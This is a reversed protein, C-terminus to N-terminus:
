DRLEVSVEFHGNKRSPKGAFLRILKKQADLRVGKLIRMDDIGHLVLGPNEHLAGHGFWETILAFPVVPKGGIVHASLIPYEITDIEKKFSLTLSSADEKQEIAQPHPQETKHSADATAAAPMDSGIVIEIPHNEQQSGMEFLMSQAGTDLPILGINQRQFARKLAPTVMGGDWPGWNISLTHCDPHQQSFRIASKNLVENAMAYDAQGINGNRASVSSFIVLYKLSDKQTVALLNRLGTVKTDFVLDFQASKKDVILRDEVVGAGHIIASIPGLASRVDEIAAKLHNCDRIDTSIYRMEVGMAEFQEFIFLMERNAMHRTYSHEIDRPSAGNNNFENELIARKIDALAFLDRLWLPEPHPPESRGVLVMKAKSHRALALAASATVGRAGGTVVVVDKNSLALQLDGAHATPLDNLALTYRCDSALGIELSESAMPELLEDCISEAIAKLDNWDPAIDLARCTVGEWEIAATKLLGSLGGMAPNEVAHGSFGFAGDLRTITALLTNIGDATDNLEQAAVQVLQFARKLFEDIELDTTLDSDAPIILGSVNSFTKNQDLIDDAMSPTLLVADVGRGAFTKVITEALKSGDKLVYVQGGPKFTLARGLSRPTERVEVSKRALNEDSNTTATKEYFQAPAGSPKEPLASNHTNEQEGNESLPTANGTLYDVIQGLSKLNGMLEPTVTPLGPVREELTSLIEVRKISDIGLDAEIDMGMNLMDAPYGTLESVVELLMDSLMTKENGAHKPTEQSTITHTGVSFSPLETEKTQGLYGVIQGLTKLTAMTDPEVSPLGPLKEELSSLIEVRKISDIGLDAEIDMDMNLMDAPYGTLESVVELLTSAITNNDLGSSSSAHSGSDPTMPLQEAVSVTPGHAALESLPSAFSRSVPARSPLPRYNHANEEVAFSPVAADKAEPMGKSVGQFGLSVEAVHQTSEMMRQLIRGAEAQTELFKQHAEATRAQLAQM